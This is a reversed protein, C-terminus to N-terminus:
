TKFVSLNFLEQYTSLFDSESKFLTEESADTAEFKLSLTDDSTPRGVIEYVTNPYEALMKIGSPVCVDIDKGSYGNLVGNDSITWTAESM